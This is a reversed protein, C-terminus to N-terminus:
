SWNNRRTHALGVSAIHPHDAWRRSDGGCAQVVVRAAGGIDKGVRADAIPHRFSLFRSLSPTVPAVKPTRVGNVSRNPPSTAQSAFLIM